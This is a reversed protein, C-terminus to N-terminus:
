ISRLAALLVVSVFAMKQKLGTAIPPTAAVTFAVSGLLTFWSAVRAECPACGVGLVAAGFRFM